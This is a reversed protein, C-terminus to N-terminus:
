PGGSEREAVLGGGARSVRVAGDASRNPDLAARRPRVHEAVARAAVAGARGRLLVDRCLRPGGRDRRADAPGPAGRPAGHGANEQRRASHLGQRPAVESLGDHPFYSQHDPSKTFYQSSGTIRRDSRWIVLDYKM